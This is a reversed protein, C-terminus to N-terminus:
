SRTSPSRTRTARARLRTRSSAELASQAAQLVNLKDELVSLKDQQVQLSTRAKRKEPVGAPAAQAANAAADSLVEMVAPTIGRAIGLSDLIALSPTLFGFQLRYWCRYRTKALPHPQQRLTHGFDRGGRYWQGGGGKGSQYQPQQPFHNNGMNNGNMMSQLSGMALTEILENNSFTSGNDAM